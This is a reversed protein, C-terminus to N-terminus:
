IDIFSRRPNPPNLFYFYNKGSLNRTKEIAEKLNWEKSIVQNNLDWLEISPMGDTQPNARSLLLFGSNLRIGRDYNFNFGPKLHDFRIDLNGRYKKSVM